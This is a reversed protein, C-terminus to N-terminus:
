AWTNLHFIKKIKIKKLNQSRLYHAGFTFVFNHYYLICLTMFDNEVSNKLRISGRIRYHEVEHWLAPWFDVPFVETPTGKEGATNVLYQEILNGNTWEPHSSEQIEELSSFKKEVVNM